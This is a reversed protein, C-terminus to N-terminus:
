SAKDSSEATYTDADLSLVDVGGGIPVANTTFSAPNHLFLFGTPDFPLEPHRRVVATFLNGAVTQRRISETDPSEHFTMDSLDPVTKGTYAKSLYDPTALLLFARATILPELRSKLSEESRLMALQQEFPDLENLAERSLDHSITEGIKRLEEPLQTPDITFKNSLDLQTARQVPLFYHSVAPNLPSPVLKFSVRYVNDILPVALSDLECPADTLVAKDNNSFTLHQNKAIHDARANTVLRADGSARVAQGRMDKGFIENLLEEREAIWEAKKVVTTVEVETGACFQLFALDHARELANSARFINTVNQEAESM